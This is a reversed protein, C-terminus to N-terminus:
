AGSPPRKSATKWWTELRQRAAKPSGRSAERGNRLSDRQFIRRRSRIEAEVRARPEVDPFRDAHTTILDELLSLDRDRGLTGAVTKLRRIERRISKSRVNRIAGLGLQLRIVRKRTEHLRSLDDDDRVRDFFCHRHHRWAKEFRDIVSDRDVKGFDTAQLWAALESIKAGVAMVIAEDERHDRSTPIAQSASLVMSALRIAERNKRGSTDKQLRALLEMIVDRDRLPSLRRGLDRAAMRMAEQSEADISGKALDLVARFRKLAKRARRIAESRMRVEWSGHSACADSVQQLEERLVRKIEDSVPLAPDLPRASPVRGRSM